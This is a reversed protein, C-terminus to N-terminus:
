IDSDRNAAGRALSGFVAAVRVRGEVGQLAARLVDAVGSTKLILGQVEAFIASDTAAQFYVQRGSLECRVLGAAVLAALERQVAGVGGGSPRIIQRLHFREDPRLLLVAMVAGRTQGFLSATPGNTGMNPVITGM